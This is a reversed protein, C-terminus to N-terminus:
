NRRRNIYYAKGLVRIHSFAPNLRLTCECDWGYLNPVTLRTNWQGADSLHIADYFESAAEYNVVDSYSRFEPYKAPFRWILMELDALTNIDYVRVDDRPYVLTSMWLENDPVFVDEAYCFQVWGSGYRPDFTSTWLGGDPKNTIGMGLNSIPSPHLIETTERYGIYLQVEM